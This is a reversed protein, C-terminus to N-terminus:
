RLSLSVATLCVRYKLQTGLVREKCTALISGLAHVLHGDHYNNGLALANQLAFVPCGFTHMHKMNAGVHISSFLELRSTGDELVPLSNHLLGANCLTYPWLAFHM